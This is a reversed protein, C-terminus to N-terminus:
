GEPDLSTERKAQYESDAFRDFAKNRVIDIGGEPDAMLLLTDGPNINFM